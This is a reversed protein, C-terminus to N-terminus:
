FFAHRLCPMLICSHRDLFFFSRCLSGCLLLRSPDVKSTPARQCLPPIRMSRPTTAAEFKADTLPRVSLKQLSFISFVLAPRPKIWGSGQALPKMHLWTSLVSEPLHLNTLSLELWLYSRIDAKKIRKCPDPHCNASHAPTFLLLLRLLLNSPPM